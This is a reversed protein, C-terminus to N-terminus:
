PVFFSRLAVCKGLHPVERPSWKDHLEIEYTFWVKHFEPFNKLCVYIFSCGVVRVDACLCHWCCVFLTEIVHFHPRPGVNTLTLRLRCEGVGAPELGTNTPSTYESADWSGRRNAMSALHFCDVAGVLKVLWSGTLMAETELFRSTPMRRATHAQPRPSARRQTRQTRVQLAKLRLLRM